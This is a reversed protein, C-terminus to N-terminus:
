RKKITAAKAADIKKEVAKLVKKTSKDQLNVSQNDDMFVDVIMVVVSILKSLLNVDFKNPDVVM